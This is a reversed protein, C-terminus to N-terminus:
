KKKILAMYFGDYGESPWVHKEEILEFKEANNDLFKQVQLENESPLISCTSYVALGGPKLMLMYDNLIQQQLEKVKEIYDESLKWKADPNRRLVGIGSCPVDLLLRDASKELRKITKSSDIWKIEVNSVGARRARLRLADLKWEETDLAVIRGKNHSLAALHLTKGGAGACADVIRLGPQIKLFPAILQSGADQMEFLGEQFEPLQFVNSWRKLFLADPFEDHMTTEIDQEALADRLKEVSTKLTNARLIIQASGNLAHIEKEWRGAGLEQVALDDLWNPVSETIKRNSKVEETKQLVAKPRIQTFEDWRPLEIKHTICWAGYLSWFDKGKAGSIEKLFRFNRVIDYTTEAIFRKDHVSLKANQKLVKEMVKDAYRRESLIAHLATVVAGSTNRYIKMSPLPLTDSLSPLSGVYAPPEVL